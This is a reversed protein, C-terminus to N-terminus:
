DHRPALRDCEDREKLANLMTGPHKAYDIAASYGAIVGLALKIPLAGGNSRSVIELVTGIGPPKQPMAQMDLVNSM